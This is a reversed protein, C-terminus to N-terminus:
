YIQRKIFSYGVGRACSSHGYRTINTHYPGALRNRLVSRATHPFTSVLVGILHEWATIRLSYRGWYLRKTPHPEKSTGSAVVVWPVDRKTFYYAQRTPSVHRERERRQLSSPIIDFLPRGHVVNTCGGEGGVELRITDTCAVGATPHPNHNSGDM